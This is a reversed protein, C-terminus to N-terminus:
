STSQRIILEPQIAILIPPNIGTPKQKSEVIKVLEEVAINGVKKQDQYVTTLPPSYYEAEPIGDFGVVMLDEPIRMGQEAATQLIKDVISRISM